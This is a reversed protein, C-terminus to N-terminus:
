TFRENTVPGRGRLWAGVELRRKGAPQVEAIEVAGEGAAVTLRGDGSLITGPEGAGDIPRAGFLKM